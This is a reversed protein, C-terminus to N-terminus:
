CLFRAIRAGLARQGAADRTFELVSDPLLEHLRESTSVPHSPDGVWPLLLVPIGIRALDPGAPLDTAASGRLVTPMLEPKVDFSTVNWGGEAPIPLPPVDAMMATLADPGAEELLDAMKRYTAGQAARTEWATPPIVLAIRRFRSPSRLAAHLLTGAGMSVGVADVAGGPALVDLLQLLDDALREWGMEAPNSGGGSRGHARADYRIVRRGDGAVASFDFLGSRSDSERSAGLGHLLVVTPGPDEGGTVDFALTAGDLDLTGSTV